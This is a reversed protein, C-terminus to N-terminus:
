RVVAPLRWEIAEVLRASRRLDLGMEDRVMAVAGVRQGDRLLVWVRTELAAPVPPLAPEPAPRSGAGNRTFLWCILGAIALVPVSVFLLLVVPGWFEM